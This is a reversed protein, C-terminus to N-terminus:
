WPNAQLAGRKDKPHLGKAEATKPGVYQFFKSFDNGGLLTPYVDVRFREKLMEHDSMMFMPWFTAEDPSLGDTLIITAEIDDPLDKDSFFSGALVIPFGRRGFSLLHGCVADLGRLADDWLRWRYANFCFRPPIECISCRHIGPPLLGRNDLPPIGMTNM